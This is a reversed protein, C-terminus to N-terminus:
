QGHSTSNNTEMFIFYLTRLSRKLVSGLGVLGCNVRVQSHIALPEWVNLISGDESIKGSFNYYPFLIQLSWGTDASLFVEM